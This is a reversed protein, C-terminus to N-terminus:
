RSRSRNTRRRVLEATCALYANKAYPGIIIGFQSFDSGLIDRVEGLDDDTLKAIVGAVPGEMEDASALEKAVEMAILLRLKALDPVDGPVCPQDEDIVALLAQTHRRLEYYWKVLVRAPLLLDERPQINSTVYARAAIVRPDGANM